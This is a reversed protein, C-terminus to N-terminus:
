FSIVDVLDDLINKAQPVGIEVRLSVFTSIKAEEQM